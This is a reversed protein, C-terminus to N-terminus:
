VLRQEFKAIAVFGDRYRAIVAQLRYRGGLVRAENGDGTVSSSEWIVRRVLLPEPELAQCM